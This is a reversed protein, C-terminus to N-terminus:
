PVPEVWIPHRPLNGGCRPCPLVPYKNTQRMSAIWDPVGHYLDSILPNATGGSWGCTECTLRELFVRQWGDITHLLACSAWSKIWPKFEQSSHPIYFGWCFEKPYKKIFDLRRELLDYSEPDWIRVGELIPEQLLEEWGENTPIYVAQDNIIEKKIRPDNLKM